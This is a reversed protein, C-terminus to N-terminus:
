IKVLRKFTINKKDEIKLLYNGKTLSTVDITSNYNTNEIHRILKGDVTFISLTIEESNDSISNTLQFNNNVPNPYVHINDSLNDTNDSIGTVTSEAVTLSSKFISDGASTSSSNTANFAGYFTVAGTGAAPATWNFSWSKSGAGSTGSSTHTIYKTSVIQTQTSTISMTGLLTGASNQPSIEFGFKTHGPRTITGTITYTTGPVYGTGPITSTILGAMFPATTGAHCSSACTAGDAPSGTKGAPAGTSHSNAEPIPTLLMAGFTIAVISVSIKTITKM